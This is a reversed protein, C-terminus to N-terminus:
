VNEKESHKENELLHVEKKEVVISNWTHYDFGNPNLNVKM